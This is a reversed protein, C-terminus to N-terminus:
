CWIPSFTLTHNPLPCFPRRAQYTLLNRVSGACLHAAFPACNHGLEQQLTGQPDPSGVVVLSAGAECSANKPHPPPPHM